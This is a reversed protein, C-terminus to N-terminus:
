EIVTGRGEAEARRLAQLAIATDQVGVGTLDCVTIQDECTRGKRKEVLLSGLELISSQETLIGAQLPSRLEGLKFCQSKLDCGIIDARGFIKPDLEQKEETDAGMATIHLGPHLWEPRIFGRRSPTTTVVVSCREVLDKVSAEVIVEVGLEESMEKRYAEITEDADLSFVHLVEFNRVLKLGRMQYRGQTGTGIVGAHVTKEPAFLRAAIAGAAGTRVQTLYGNDLLIAVPFGTRSDLVIMMGSASSLGRESNRFFGSAIKIAFRELDPIYATKVDVEGQQEPVPIMLIPPVTAKGLSLYRFGEEVAELAEMDLVVSSKLEQETLIRM